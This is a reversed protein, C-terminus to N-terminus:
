ACLIRPDGPPPPPTLCQSDSCLIAHRLTTEGDFATYRQVYFLANEDRNQLFRLHSINTREFKLHRHNIRYIRDIFMGQM